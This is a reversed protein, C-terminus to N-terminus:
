LGGGLVFSLRRKGAAQGRLNNYILLTAAEIRNLEKYDIAAANGYYNKRTGVAFPYTGACIKELNDEIRNIDGAYIRTEYSTWDPGTTVSFDPYLKVAMDHLEQLNNKIRNYDELNFYDGVYNGNADYGGQWNTKPQIWAM